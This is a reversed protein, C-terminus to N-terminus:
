ILKNLQEVIEGKSVSGVVTGAVKGDKFFILTPISRIGMDAPLEEVEDCNCKGVIAKGEFENAIEEVTPALARCPGCWPAWFDVIVPKTAELVVEKFNSDTIEIM